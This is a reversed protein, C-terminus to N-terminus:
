RASPSGSMTNICPVNNQRQPLLKAVNFVLSVHFGHRLMQYMIENVSEITDLM